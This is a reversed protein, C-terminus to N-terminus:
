VPSPARLRRRQAGVAFAYLLDGHLGARLRIVRGIAGGDVDAVAYHIRDGVLMALRKGAILELRQEDGAEALVGVAGLAAQEGVLFNRRVQNVGDDGNLVPTEKLVAADIVPADQARQAVVDKVQVAVRFACGRERLLQRAAKEERGLAGIRALDRSATM